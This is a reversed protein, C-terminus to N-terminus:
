EGPYSIEELIEPSASDEEDGNEPLNDLDEDELNMLEEVRAKREAEEISELSKKPCGTLIALLFLIIKM